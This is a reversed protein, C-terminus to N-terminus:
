CSASSFWLSGTWTPSSTIHQPSSETTIAWTIDLHRHFPHLRFLPTFSITEGKEQQGAFQSHEHFFVWISFFYISWFFELHPCKERLEPHDSKNARNIQTKTIRNADYFQSHESRILDTVFIKTQHLKNKKM